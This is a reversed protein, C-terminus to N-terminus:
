IIGDDEFDEVVSVIGVLGNPIFPSGGFKDNKKLGKLSQLVHLEASHASYVGDVVITRNVNNYRNHMDIANVIFRM